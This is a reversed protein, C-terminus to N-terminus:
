AAVRYGDLGVLAQIREVPDIFGRKAMEPVLYGALDKVVGKKNNAWPEVVKPRISYSGWFKLLLHDLNTRGMGPNVEQIREHIVAADISHSGVVRQWIQKRSTVNWTCRVTLREIRPFTQIWDDGAGDALDGYTILTRTHYWPSNAPDQSIKTRSELDDVSHLGISGSIPSFTNELM